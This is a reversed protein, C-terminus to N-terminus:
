ALSYSCTNGNKTIQLNKNPVDLVVYINEIKPRITTTGAASGILPIILPYSAGDVTFDGRYSNGSLTLQVNSLDSCTAAKITKINFSQLVRRRATALSSIALLLIVAFLISKIMNTQFKTTLLNRSEAVKLDIL